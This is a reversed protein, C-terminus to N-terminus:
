LREGNEEGDIFKDLNDTNNFFFTVALTKAIDEDKWEKYTSIHQKYHTVLRTLKGFFTENSKRPLLIYNTNYFKQAEYNIIEVMKSYSIEEKLVKKELEKIKSTIIFKEM